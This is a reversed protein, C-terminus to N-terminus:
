LRLCPASYGSKLLQGLFVGVGERWVSKDTDPKILNSLRSRKKKSDMGVSLQGSVVSLQCSLWIYMLKDSVM